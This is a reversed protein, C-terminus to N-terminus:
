PKFLAGLAIAQAAPMQGYTFVGSVDGLTQRVQQWSYPSGYIVVGQIQAQEMLKRWRQDLLEASGRFPNGRVFIQLLVPADLPLQPLTSSADLLHLISYGQQAPLTIAPAQRTLFDCDLCDDILVVNHGEHGAASNPPSIPGGQVELSQQLIAEVTATAQPQSLQQWLPLNTPSKLQAKARWIRALSQHIQAESLRGSEVAGCVAEVAEVPDSPMMLVDAGAEVAMVAAEGTGYQNAIAGMVLADTVIIGDFGLDQRLLSTLVKPSLTAPRVPDLDPVLLHASMVSDVGANIAAEFPPLEIAELRDRSHHIVPLELHSDVATDGHGPFHKAATLVPHQQAGEIFAVALAEVTAPDDGLARVNIVPNAPNNNVDVVPGLVWNLGLALAEQATIAGMTRAYTKAPQLDEHAIAGLAMPPPFWTAGAFRQGVGEEIDAALFLPVEAWSQLQACRQQVEAASGGLLIVGGIGLDKVWHQLKDAPPEWAPYTIQHDF